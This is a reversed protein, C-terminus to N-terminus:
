GLNNLKTIKLFKQDRVPSISKCSPSNIPGRKEQYRRSRNLFNLYVLSEPKYNLNILEQQRSLSETSSADIEILIEDNYDMNFTVHKTVNNSDTKIISKCKIQEVQIKIEKQIDELSRDSDNLYYTDNSSSSEASSISESSDSPLNLQKFLEKEEEIAHKKHRNTLIICNSGSSSTSLLSSSMSLRSPSSLFDANAEPEARYEGISYLNKVIALCCSSIFENTSNILSKFKSDIDLSILEECGSKDIRSVLLWIVECTASVLVMNSSKLLTDSLNKFLELAMSAELQNSLSKLLKLLVDDLKENSKSFLNTLNKLKLKECIKIKNPYFLSLNHLMILITRITVLDLRNNSFLDVYIESFDSDKLIRSETKSLTNLLITTDYVLLPNSLCKKLASLFWRHNISINSNKILSNLIKIGISTLQIFFDVKKFNFIWIVEILEIIAALGGLETFVSPEIKDLTDKILHLINLNTKIDLNQIYRSVITESLNSIILIIQFASKSKPDMKANAINMFAEQAFRRSVLRRNFIELSFEDYNLTSAQSLEFIEYWEEFIIGSLVNQLSKCSNQTLTSMSETCKTLNLIIRSNLELNRTNYISALSLIKDIKQNMYNEINHPNKSAHNMDEIKITLDM